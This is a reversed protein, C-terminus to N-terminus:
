LSIHIFQNSKKRRRRELNRPFKLNIKEKQKLRNRYERTKLRLNLWWLQIYLCAADRCGVLIYRCYTKKEGKYIGRKEKEHTYVCLCVSVCTIICYFLQQPPPGVQTFPTYITCGRFDGRASPRIPFLYIYPRRWEKMTSSPLRFLSVIVEQNPVWPALVFAVAWWWFDDHFHEWVCCIVQSPWLRSRDMRTFQIVAVMM